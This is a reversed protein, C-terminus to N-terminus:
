DGGSILFYIKGTYNPDCADGIGDHDIDEQGANAVTPCNDASDVAGDADADVVGQSGVVCTDFTYSGSWAGCGTAGCARTQRQSNCTSGFAVTSSQYRNRSEDCTSFSFTGSWQGVVGSTCVSTQLEQQCSSGSPVTASQYRYRTANQSCNASIVPTSKVESSSGSSSSGTGSNKCGVISLIIIIFIFKMASSRAVPKPFLM